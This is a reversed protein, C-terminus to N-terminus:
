LAHRMELKKMTYFSSFHPQVLGNESGGCGRGGGCDGEGVDITLRLQCQKCFCGVRTGLTQYIFLVSPRM